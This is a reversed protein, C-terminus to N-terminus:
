EFIPLKSIKHELEEITSDNQISYDAQKILYEDKLQIAIRKKATQEDINDRKCIRELKTTNSAIMAITSDCLKDLGSEFLLPADMVILKNQEVKQIQKKIEEVVHVFTIQNLEERKQQNSYILDALQKRNLEGTQNLIEEGFQKIIHELYATKGQTLQKAVQDADIIEVQYKKKLIECVTSKGAGSNGTLGIIKM